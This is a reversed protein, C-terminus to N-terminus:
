LWEAPEKLLIEDVMEKCTMGKDSTRMQVECIDFYRQEAEKCVSGCMEEYNYSCEYEGVGWISVKEIKGSKNIYIESPLKETTNLPDLSLMAEVGSEKIEKFYKYNVRYDVGQVNKVEAKIEIYDPWIKVEPEVVDLSVEDPFEPATKGVNTKACADSFIGALCVIVLTGLTKKTM